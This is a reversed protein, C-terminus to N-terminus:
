PIKSDLIKCVKRVLALNTLETNGGINYKEGKEGNMLVQILADAHDEVYLWDQHKEMAMSLIQQKNMAKHIILPLLKKLSNTLGM